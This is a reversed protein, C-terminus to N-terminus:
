FNYCMECVKHLYKWSNQSLRKWHLSVPTSVSLRWVNLVLQWPLSLMVFISISYLGTRVTMLATYANACANSLKCFSSHAPPTPIHGSIAFNLLLLNSFCKFFTENQSEVTFAVILNSSFLSTLLSITKDHIHFYFQIDANFFDNCLISYSCTAPMGEYLACVNRKSKKKHHLPWLM